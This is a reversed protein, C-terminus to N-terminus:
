DEKIEEYDKFPSTDLSEVTTRFEPWKEKYYGNVMDLAKKLDQEFKAILKQETQGPAHLASSTYWFATSYSNNVSNPNDRTIGQRDDEKGLFVDLMANLTDITTKCLAIQDKYGDKDKKKLDSQIDKVIDLSEKLRDVAKVGLAYKAEMSKLTAYQARIATESMEIRPDYVVKINTSDKQDGLTFRVKYTGPLVTVGGPERNSRRDRRSMRDVGKEDMYWFTRHLGNKDPAKSKLTRIIETGKYIEIILSDYTAKSEDEENEVAGKQDKQKKSKKSTAETEKKDTREPINVSYTLM